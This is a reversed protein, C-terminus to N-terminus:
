RLYWRNDVSFESGSGAGVVDIENMGPALTLLDGNTDRTAPVGNRLVRIGEIRLTDNSNLNINSVFQTKNTRNYMKLASVPGKIHWNLMMGYDANVTENLGNYIMMKSPNTYDYYYPGGFIEAQGLTWISDQEQVGTNGIIMPTQTTAVTEGFPLEWTQLKLEVDGYQTNKLRKIDLSRTFVQYRLGHIIEGPIPEWIYFWEAKNLWRSIMDRAFSYDKIDYAAFRFHWDIERVGHRLGKPLQGPRSDTTQATLEKQIPKVDFLSTRIAAREKMEKLTLVSGDQYEAIRGM